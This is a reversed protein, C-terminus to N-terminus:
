NLIGEVETVITVFTDLPLEDKLLLISLHKKADKILREWVGARHSAYPVTFTWELGILQLEAAAKSSNWTEIACKLEAEAGKFNTGCDSFIQRVGPHRAQFRILACLFTPTSLDKLVDFYVARVKM